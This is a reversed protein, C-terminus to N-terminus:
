DDVIELIDSISKKDFYAMLKILTPKSLNIISNNLYQRITSQQLGTAEKVETLTIKRGLSFEKEEILQRVKTRIEPMM